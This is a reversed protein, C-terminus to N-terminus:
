NRLNKYPACVFKSLLLTVIGLISGLIMPQFLGLKYHSLWFSIGMNLGSFVIMLLPSLRIFAFNVMRWGQYSNKCETFQKEKLNGEQEM